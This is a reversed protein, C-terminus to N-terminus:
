MSPSAKMYRIVETNLIVPVQKFEWHSIRFSLESIEDIYNANSQKGRTSEAKGQGSEGSENNSEGKDKPLDLNFFVTGTVGIKSCCREKLM